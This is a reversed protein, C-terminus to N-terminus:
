KIKQFILKMGRPNTTRMTAANGNEDMEVNFFGEEGVHAMFKLRNGPLPLLEMMHDPHDGESGFLHGGILRVEFIHDKDGAFKGTFVTLKEETLQLPAEPMSFPHGYLFAMTNLAIEHLWPGDSHNNLLVIFVDDEPVRIMKSEFGYVRGNHGVTKRGAMSDLEWGYGYPGKFPQYAQVLTAKDLVKGAQLAQHWKYLDVVTSYMSGSGIVESSDNPPGEVYKAASFNWYGTSKDTSQLHKFDFGSHEMKLPRFIWNRVVTEYPEKVVKQIIYALLMYNSNSYSFKTGPSFLLQKQQLTDLVMQENAPINSQKWFDFVDTYNFIGSSHTLLNKLTISDAKPFSPFYKSLPDDLSLKKQVALKLIIAATFEKTMSGIQFITNADNLTRGSVNKFGYGKELLVRGGKAVLVSGNFKNCNAYITMMSDLKQSIDGQAVSLTCAAIALLLVIIKKM